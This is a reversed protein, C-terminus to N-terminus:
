KSEPLLAVAAKWANRGYSIAADPRDQKMSHTIAATTANYADWLTKGKEVEYNRAAVQALYAPIEMEKPNFFEAPSPVLNTKVMERMTPMEKKFLETLMAVQKKVAEVEITVNGIHRRNISLFKRGIVMGNSCVLRFAGFVIQLKHSGDYSNKVILRMAIEDGGGVDIKIDPLTLELNLRAGNHTLMVREQVNQGELAERFAGVVNDHPLLAYKKSVVGIAMDKDTRVVAQRFPIKIGEETVIKRFEVPFDYDSKM